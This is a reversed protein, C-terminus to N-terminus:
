APFAVKKCVTTVGKFYRWNDLGGFGIAKRYAVYAEMDPFSFFRIGKWRGGTPWLYVSTGRADGLCKLVGDVFPKWEEDTLDHGKPTRNYEEMTYIAHPGRDVTWVQITNLIGDAKPEPRTCVTADLIWFTDLKMEIRARGYTLWAELSPFTSLSADSWKGSVPTLYLLLKGGAEEYSRRNKAFLEGKEADSLQRRKETTTWRSVVFIEQSM